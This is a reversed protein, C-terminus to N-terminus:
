YLCHWRNLLSRDTAHIQQSERKQFLQSTLFGEYDCMRGSGSGTVSSVVKEGLM